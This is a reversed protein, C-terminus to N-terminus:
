GIIPGEYAIISPYLTLESKMELRNPWFRLISLTIIIETVELMHLSEHNLIFIFDNIM